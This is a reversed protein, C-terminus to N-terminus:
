ECTIAVCIISLMISLGVGVRASADSVAVAMYSLHALIHPHHITITIGLTSGRHAAILIPKKMVM